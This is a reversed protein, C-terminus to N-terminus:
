RRAATAGYAVCPTASPMRMHAEDGTYRPKVTLITTGDILPAVDTVTVYHDRLEGAAAAHCVIETGVPVEAAAYNTSM